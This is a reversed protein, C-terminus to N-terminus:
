TTGTAYTDCVRECKAKASFGKSRREFHERGHDANADSEGGSECKRMTNKAHEGGKLPLVM